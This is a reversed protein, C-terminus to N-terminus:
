ALRFTATYYATKKRREGCSKTVVDINDLFLVLIMVSASALV